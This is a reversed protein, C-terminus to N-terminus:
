ACIDKLAEVFIEAEAKSLNLPPLLRLVRPDSSTGTIIRRELLAKQVKAAIPEAFEVGLLLGLGRVCAVGPVGALQERLYAEVARVNGLMEDAEIAELTASVAAMALMGGGFTTGLDNEKIAGAVDETTLCAGVPVGSGLAKALTIVDPVVRGAAESGAFFWSGTRGVGTQVEDFILMVGREDCLRRLEKFFEPASTRVGAMSQVPELMVAAMTEDTLAAVSEISGFEACLHGPVNPRGLERYKGLYTASIADATRGHFSGTFTIIGGRGTKMRAMRMANENAETGSNCFFAKTISEPACAVLREAAHARVDSYVVNSYFLLRGAQERLAKVVHPHCHGTACVAHGGYLDLFREGESTEVWSGEGSVPAFPFKKYTALQFEEERAAIEDFKTKTNLAM